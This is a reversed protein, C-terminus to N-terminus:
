RKGKLMAEIERKAKEAATVNQSKHVHAFVRTYTKSM